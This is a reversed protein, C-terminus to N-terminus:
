HTYKHQFCLIVTLDCMYQVCVCVCVCVSVCDSTVKDSSSTAFFLHCRRTALYDSWVSM